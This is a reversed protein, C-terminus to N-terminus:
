SREVYVVPDKITDGWDHVIHSNATFRMPCGRVNFLENFHDVMDFFEKQFNDDDIMGHYESVHEPSEFWEDAEEESMSLWDYKGGEITTFFCSGMAMIYEYLDPDNVLIKRAESVILDIAKESIVYVNNEYKDTLADFDCEIKKIINEKNM